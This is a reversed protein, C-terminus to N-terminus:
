KNMYCWIKSSGYPNDDDNLWNVAMEVYKEDRGKADLSPFWKALLAANDSAVMHLTVYFDWMNYGKMEGKLSDYIGRVTEASWFPAKRVMGTAPDRYSMRAVDEVAYHEDYHGESMKGYIKRELAEKEAEPMSAEVADSIIAVTDWMM